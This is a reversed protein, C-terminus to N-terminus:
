KFLFCYYFMNCFKLHFTHYIFPLWASWYLACHLSVLSEEVKGCRKNYGQSATIKMAGIGYEWGRYASYQIGSGIKNYEWKASEAWAVTSCTM